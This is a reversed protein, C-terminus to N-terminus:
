IDYSNKLVLFRFNILILKIMHGIHGGHGYLIFEEFIKEERVLLGITMFSSYVM